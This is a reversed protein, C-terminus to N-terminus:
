LKLVDQTKAGMEQLQFDWYRLTALASFSHDLPYNPKQTFHLCNMYHLLTQSWELEFKEDALIRWPAKYLM